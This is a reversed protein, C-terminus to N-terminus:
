KTGNKDGAEHNSEIVGGRILTRKVTETRFYAVIDWKGDREQANCVYGKGMGKVTIYDWRPPTKRTVVLLIQSHQKSDADLVKDRLEEITM